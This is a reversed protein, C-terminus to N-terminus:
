PSGFGGGYVDGPKLVATGVPITDRLQIPKASANPGPTPTAYAAAYESRQKLNFLAFVVFVAVIAIAFGIYVNRM